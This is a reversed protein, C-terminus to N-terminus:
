RQSCRSLPLCLHICLGSTRVARQIQWTRVTVCREAPFRNATHRLKIVVLCAKGQAAHMLADHARLAVDLRHKRVDPRLARLAVCIDMAPFHASATFLAVADITPVNGHLRNLIVIVTERQHARMGSEIAIGAVLIAGQAVERRHRGLAVRAVRLIELLGCVRIM